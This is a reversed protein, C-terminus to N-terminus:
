LFLVKLKPYRMCLMVAKRRAAWSKGGGRAGGYAIRPATAKFFEIQKPNPVDKRLHEFILAKNAGNM